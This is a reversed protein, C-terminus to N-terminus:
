GYGGRRGRVVRSAEGRGHTRSTGGLGLYRSTKNRTARKRYSLSFACFFIM